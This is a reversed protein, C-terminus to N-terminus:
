AVQRKVLKAFIGDQKVLEEFTGSEAVTGKDMVLIRDCKRITSLRHAIVIRTVALKDVSETVIAQTKNDLASTAEDFVLIAPKAALARAIMIRQRQGGSINSSGESIVTQMGMPMARIDDAIGAAEAAAWADDQTLATQGVINTFIDGTMLQGNQLVVGMQSRVSPLSLESLDQGDFFIAGSKPKEFGLLLRVLTSKGCGSRGVIALNEGAKVKFSVDKLVEPKGEGYAFTLHSVELSGTLPEAEVKEETTEPLEELLPKMNEIHPQITFFEGVLPIISNLTGNFSTYAAEFALFQAYGIGAVQAGAMSKELASASALSTDQLGYVAIYYLLMTLVFPQISGIISNYNRQWRLALNWKWTEGFVKSWLHYAQEEAGRVRFKALGTFLQQVLGAEKNNAAILNRQFGIVRRYIFATVLCWVVWVAVAAATLKLSYWCMLLLSWFSFITNFISSVFSGGIVSKVAEMGQMRHALEGSTFRRFFKEPLTLLRGWLAAEVSMDLRSSIRMVAISRIVSLAAMTFSTVMMVQTVTVLGKRDLIPLIDRFITETIIPTVLPIFGAFFSVLILTRYDNKWCQHFMFKLLDRIRLRKRPFGAYCQFADTDLEQALSDTLPRGEPHQRSVLRYSHPTEPLIAVPEKKDGDRKLYGILVGTDHKYWDGTLKVLRLQMNGKQALRRLLGVPDLKKIIEQPLYLSGESMFLAKQACRVAYATSETYSNEGGEALEFFSSGDDLLEGISADLLVRKREELRELRSALRKDGAIFENGALMAMIRQNDKFEEVLESLSACGALAAGSDWSKRVDDGKALMDQMRPVELLQKLWREMLPRLKEPEAGQFPVEELESPEVNYILIDVSEFEDWAPFVAEGPALTVLYEQRFDEKSRTVAYVEVKGKTLLLFHDEQTLTFREGAEFNLMSKM